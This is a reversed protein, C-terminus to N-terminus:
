FSQTLWKTFDKKQFFRIVRLLIELSPSIEDNALPRGFTESGQYGFPKGLNSVTM